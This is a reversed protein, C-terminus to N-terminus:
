TTPWSGNIAASRAARGPARDRQVGPALPSRAHASRALGGDAQAAPDIEDTSLDLGNRQVLLEEAEAETFALDAARLEALMGTARHRSLRLAPDTRSVLILRVNAPLAEIARDITALCETDTVTHLDDLVVVLDDGFSGLGNLLVDVTGEDSSAATRLRHWRRGASDKASAIRAAAM